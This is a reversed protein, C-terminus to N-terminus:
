RIRRRDQEAQQKKAMEALQKVMDALEDLRAELHRMQDDRGQRCNDCARATDAYLPPSCGVEM